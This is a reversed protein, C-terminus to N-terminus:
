PNRNSFECLILFKMWSSVGSESVKRILERKFQEIRYSLISRTVENDARKYLSMLKELYNVESENPKNPQIERNPLLKALQRQKM